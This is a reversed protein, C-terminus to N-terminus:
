PRQKVTRLNVLKNLTNVIKNALENLDKAFVYLGEPVYTIYECKWYLELVENAFVIKSYWSNEGKAVLILFQHNSCIGLILVRSPDRDVVYIKEIGLSSLLSKLADFDSNKLNLM